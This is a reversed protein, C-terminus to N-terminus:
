LRHSSNLRTSKRDLVRQLKDTWVKPANALLGNCYDIRSTVFAHILTAAMDADVSRHVRRLQRVHFFCKGSVISALRLDPTIM